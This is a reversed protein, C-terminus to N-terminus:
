ALLAGARHAAEAVAAIDCVDLLPNSPTEVVVLAAGDCAAAIAATDTPVSRVELGDFRLARVGFYGDSPIVITQGPRVCTEVVASIAAMGSAFALAGGGELEGLAAELAAWTPNTNRGYGFPAGEVDGTLHYPAALVVPPGLPAGDRPAPRGAHVARTSPGPRRDQPM